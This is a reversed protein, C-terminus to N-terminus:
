KRGVDYLLGYPAGYRSVVIRLCLTAESVYFSDVLGCYASSIKMEHCRRNAAGAKCNSNSELVDCFGHYNHPIQSGSGVDKNNEEDGFSKFFTEISNLGSIELYSSPIIRVDEQRRKDLATFAKLLVHSCLFTVKSLSDVELFHLFM